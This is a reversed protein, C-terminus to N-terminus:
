IKKHIQFVEYENVFYCGNDVIKNQYQSGHVCECGNVQCNNNPCFMRLNGGYGFDIGRDADHYFFANKPQQVRSLISNKQTGNKLSFIFSDHCSIKGRKSRDWAIPNYGGVIREINNSAKINIVTITIEKLNCLNWFSERNFGDRSGRLLLKFEYPNNTSNYATTTKDIWSAIEAAHEENIVVSFPETSRNPLDPKLIIRPPLITSSIKYNNSIFNGSLDKWLNKELIQSYPQINNYIDDASMQFYRILSLCNKLTSKLTMFNEYSWDNLDSPLDINQAIGWKIVNNWIKIEEMQLDDREILSILADEKLSVFNESDFILNPYKVVIDNCWKQLRKLNKNEFSTKYIHSFHSRLWHANSEILHSEIVETLEEFLLEYTVLLLDFIFQVDFEELSIM